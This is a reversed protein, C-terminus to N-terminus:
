HVMKLTSNALHTALVKITTFQKRTTAGAPVERAILHYMSADAESIHYHNAYPLISNYTHAVNRPPYRIYVLHPVSKEVKRSYIFPIRVEEDTQWNDFSPVVKM